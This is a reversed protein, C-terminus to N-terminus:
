ESIRQLNGDRDMYEHTYTGTINCPYYEDNNGDGWEIYCTVDNPPDGPPLTFDFIVTAPPYFTEPPQPNLQVGDVGVMVWVPFAQSTSNFGNSLEVEFAFFGPTTFTHSIPFPITNASWPVGLGVSFQQDGGDGYKFDVVVSTGADMSVTCSVNSGQNIVAQNTNVYKPAPLFNCTVVANAIAVEIAFVVSVPAPSPDLANSIIYTVNHLGTVSETKLPSTAQKNAEDITMTEEVNDYWLQVQVETGTVWSLTISFPENATGGPPTLGDGTIREMAQVVLSGDMWNINNSCNTYITVNGNKPFNHAYVNTSTTDTFVTSDAYSFSLDCNFDSGTTMGINVNTSVGIEVINSPTTLTLGTIREEVCVTTTNYKHSKANTINVSMNYSGTVTYTYSVLTTSYTTTTDGNGFDWYLTTPDGPLGFCLLNLAGNYCILSDLTIKLVCLSSFASTGFYCVSM